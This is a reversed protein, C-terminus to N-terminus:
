KYNAESMKMVEKCCQDRESSGPPDLSKELLRYDSYHKVLVELRYKFKRNLPPRLNATNFNLFNDVKLESERKIRDFVEKKELEEKTFTKEAEYLYLLSKMHNLHKKVFENLRKKISLM